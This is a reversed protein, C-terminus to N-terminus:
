VKRAPHLWVRILSLLKPLDIPKALYDNAGAELCKEQDDAMAKATVAIIPLSKFRPDRRIERTAEYGNMEPMMIDMLVLDVSASSRVKEVAERGNRAIEIRAGRQELANKLAFINRVDDDVLLVNKGELDKERDRLNQLVKQREIPMKSEVQHLFLNVESLLREPSKAGKLIISDSYRQLKEEEARGLERGTYVIVPPHSLAETANMRELIEYGSMDPLTLDLILCDFSTSQLLDIAEAGTRVAAVEVDEDAILKKMSELQVSNDEVILVKKIGQALKGELKRIVDIIDDRTAPKHLYGVAGMQLAAQSFDNASIVHVPIHRTLPNEKLRDLVFLGSHDPLHIDLIIANPLYEEAMAVAEEAYHAVVCQFQVEHSLKRIVQAFAQDDEVVMLLKLSPDLNARDDNAAPAQRAPKRAPEPARPAGPSAVVPAAAEARKSLASIVLTFVSGKGPESDVSISGNLLRALDRSITLGLGTGGYRRNTTGDAQQFAEFIIQQKDHPIGVGTDKVAFALKGRSPSYVELKVEGEGTFKLANSLLNRLIQELRLRDTEFTAPAGPRLDCSFEIGKSQAMPGFTKELSGMVQEIEVEEAQLEVKGAEVKALDLIDNILSLLDNSSSLITRAYEVEESSLNNSKNDILLQSLILTSNLPTRLEHSMNALFQSKYESARQLELAKMELSTRAQNLEDNHQELIRAQQTLQSNTQELEAQQGELKMQSEKLANSQEELEENSVRLEEQQAQLEEAQRQSEELLEQLRLRNQASVISIAINESVLRLVEQDRAHLPRTFGLEVVARVRNDAVLPAIIVSSSDASGILSNVSLFNQPAPDLIIFRNEAAAQGALSEGMKVRDRTERDNRSLAFSASRQLENGELVYLVGVKAELYECLFGLAKNGVEELRLDGRIVESAKNQGARLWNQELLAASQTEVEALANGYINSVTVLQRRSYLALVTGVVVMSFLIFVLAIRVSEQSNENREDRLLTEARIFNGMEVRIQDVIKKGKESLVIQRARDRSGAEMLEGAFENWEKFMSEIRKLRGFQASNDAVLEELARLREPFMEQTHRFPDLFGDRETIVYGRQATEADVVLHLLEHGGAIVQDSHNLLRNISVLQLIMGIFVASILAAIGLPLLTNRLAIRRFKQPDLTTSNM